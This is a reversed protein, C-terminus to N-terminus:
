IHVSTTATPLASPQKIMQPISPFKLTKIPSNSPYSNPKSPVTHHVRIQMESALLSGNSKTASHPTQPSPLPNYRYNGLQSKNKGRLVNPRIQGTCFRGGHGDVPAQCIQTSFYLVTKIAAAIMGSIASGSSRAHAPDSYVSIKNVYM